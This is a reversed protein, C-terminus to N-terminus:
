NNCTARTTEIVTRDDNTIVVTEETFTPYFKEGNADLKNIVTTTKAEDGTPLLTTTLRFSTQNRM